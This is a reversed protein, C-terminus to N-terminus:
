GLSLTSSGRGHLATVEVNTVTDALDATATDTDAGGDVVDPFGDLSNLTDNGGYGYLFDMGDRGVITDAGAGGSLMNGPANGTLTNGAQGGIVSEIGNDTGVNDKEGPQGDNPKRDLSVAIAATRDEYVVSDFGAGGAMRDPGDPAVSYFGDNGAGGSQKDAGAEGELHDAGRGGTLTDNGGGGRLAVTKAVAKGSAKSGGASLVDNGDTGYFSYLGFPTLTTTVDVDGDGNLDLGKEGAILKDSRNTGVYELAIPFPHNPPFPDTGPVVAVRIEIESKGNAEAPRGPGLAGGQLDITVYNAGITDASVGTGKIDIRKTNRVTAAGCPIMNGSAIYQIANGSRIVRAGFEEVMTM